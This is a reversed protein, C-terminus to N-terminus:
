PVNDIGYIAVNQIKYPLIGLRTAIGMSEFLDLWQTHQKSEHNGVISLFPINKQKLKSLINITDLIDELTPNRSDFLDGAHIVADMKMEIADDIVRSFADIFDQRRVESHYQRYGIHTDATHLIRIDREMDRQITGWKSKLKNNQSYRLHEFSM